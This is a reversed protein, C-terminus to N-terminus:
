IYDYFVHMILIRFLINATVKFLSVIINIKISMM